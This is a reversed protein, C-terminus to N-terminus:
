SFKLASQRAMFRKVLLPLISTPIQLAGMIALYEPGFYLGAVTFTLFVNRNAATIGAMLAFEFGRQRYIIYGIFFFLIVIMSALFLYNLSAFFDERLLRSYGNILGFPFAMVLIITVQSVKAYARKLTSQAVVRYVLASIIMPAAIFIILRKCYEVMDLNVDSTQFVLLSIYLVIPMLLTSAITMAMAELADLGVSRVIAPTAFLSGTAGVAALALMMSESASFMWGIVTLILTLIVNHIFTYLWVKQSCLVKILAQQNIGILTFLMLFFLVYPLYVFVASSIDPLAVGLFAFVILFIASHHSM